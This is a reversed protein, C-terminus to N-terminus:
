AELVIVTKEVHSHSKAAHSAFSTCHSSSHPFSHGSHHSSIYLVGKFLNEIHRCITRLCAMQKRTAFWIDVRIRKKGVRTLELDIIISSHSPSLEM